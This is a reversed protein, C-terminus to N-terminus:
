LAVLQWSELTRRRDGGLETLVERVAQRMLGTAPDAAASFTVTVEGAEGNPLAVERRETRPRSPPAFLDAPLETTLRGATKHVADVFRLLEAREAPDRPRADLEAIAERVALDLQASLPAAAGGVIRGGADLRLPFPGPDERERELRAFAALREPASVEVGAPEGTVRYGGEVPEFRVVFSRSAVLRLGDALPRELRRTYRMAGSPPAFRPGQAVARGPAGSVVPLLMAAAALRLLTRRDAATM